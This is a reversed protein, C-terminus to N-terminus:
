ENKSFLSRFKEIKQYAYGYEPVIESLNSEVMSKKSELNHTIFPHSLLIITFKIYKQFDEEKLFIMFDILEEPQNYFKFIYSDIVYESKFKIGSNRKALNLIELREDTRYYLSASRDNSKTDLLTFYDISKLLSNYLHKKSKFITDLRNYVEPLEFSKAEFIVNILKKLISYLLEIDAKAVRTYAKKQEKLEFINIFIDEFSRSFNIYENKNIYEGNKLQNNIIFEESCPNFFLINEFNLDNKERSIGKSNNLLINIFCFHKLRDNIYSSKHFKFIRLLIEMMSFIDEFVDNTFNKSKLHNFLIDSKLLYLIEEFDLKKMFIGLSFAGYGNDYNSIKLKENDLSEIKGTFRLFSFKLAEKILM